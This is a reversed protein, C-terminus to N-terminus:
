RGARAYFADRGTRLDKGYSFTVGVGFVAIKAQAGADWLWPNPGPVLKETITGTDVFPGLKISVIGNRYINKDTEWNALVYSRGLPASGKRGRHAGAHGRLLLDNDRELGLMFLEDFPPGGWTKGAQMRLRTEFDDGQAQPFWHPALSAQLKEFSQAPHSFVRGAGSSVEATVNFRREPFRLWDYRLKATQVLQYGAVLLDPTLTSGAAVDRHDRHSVGAGASWSLRGGVLRTIEAAAEERRLNLSAVVPEATTATDRIDWNESRLDTSLHFRWKPNRRFPGSLSAHARRKEADWRVLSVFNIAEGGINFYEPNVQQYPLGNLLGLLGELTSNGWGNREAGNLSADFKGDPRASLELRFGPFIELERLRAETALLDGAKLTAAPSFAFARDLLVANVHLDPRTHVSEISPKDVRNWYGLAAELNGQLFYVTALFETAYSDSPDLRLARRLYRAAESYHKRRFAVGALEVPFRKNRPQLVSGALLAKRAEELRNLHALAMGYYYELDASRGPTAELLAALEPWREAEFLQQATPGNAQQESRSPQQACLPRWSLLFLLAAHAIV